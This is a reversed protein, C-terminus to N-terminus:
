EEATGAHQVANALTAVLQAALAAPAPLNREKLWAALTIGPCYASAIYCIPGDAHVEFVPVLNPHDLGAVVRAERLFRQRLDTTALAEPRPIKLAVLRRLKPDYALFVVGFAGRGLERRVQFRGLEVAPADATSAPAGVAASRPLLRRLLQICALDGELRARLDRAAEAGVPDDGADRAAMVQDCAVLLTMFPEDDSTSEIPNM